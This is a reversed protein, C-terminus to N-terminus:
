EERIDEDAPRRFEYQVILVPEENDHTESIYTLCTDLCARCHESAVPKVQSLLVYCSECEREVITEGIHTYHQIMCDYNVRMSNPIDNFFCEYCLPTQTRREVYFLAFVCRAYIPLPIATGVAALCADTKSVNSPM